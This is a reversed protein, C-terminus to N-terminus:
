RLNPNQLIVGIHGDSDRGIVWPCVVSCIVEFGMLVFFVFNVGMGLCVDGEFLRNSRIRLVSRKNECRLIDGFVSPAKKESAQRFPNPLYSKPIM